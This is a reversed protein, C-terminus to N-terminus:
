HPSGSELLGLEQAQIQLALYKSYARCQSFAGGTFYLGPQATRTWMNRLEATAPDFGWVAGVRNAVENGFFGAVTHELGHYGTGLVILEIEILSGNKMRAGNAEFSEIDDYQILGIEGSAILNSCGVNFYYGGGRSRFLYPWGTGDVGSSLRFGVKELADLLPRDQRRAQSTLTRHGQLMIPLPMSTNILDRDEISPGDGLFVGDYLQASPEIEIVMTPNRQVMVPRAGQGHLEQAVDHASTGTGIVMVSKGRWSAGDAFASSHEVRGAFRDLTPIGPIKAAGSVGTALIIHRPRLVRETGDARQVYAEWHDGSTAGPQGSGDLRRARTLRTRTWFHIDMCEVYAEFWNAIRDKPLYRQWTSPFPMYPLHNSHFQNHLKLARYRRRWNDGIREMPDVVLNDIGLQNLRAAVSLGAHGGGVILVTPERDEFRSAINRRELWNPGNWERQYVPEERRERLTQEDHDRIAELATHLTWATRSIDGDPLVRLRLLAAAEGTETDFKLIAEVARVGAREVVRPPSRNEDIQFDRARMSALGRALPAALAQRGSLTTLSWTLALAERWHSDEDFLCAVRAPDGLQAVSNLQDVWASVAASLANPPPQCAM